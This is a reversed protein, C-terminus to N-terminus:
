LRNKLTAIVFLFFMTIVFIVHKKLEKCNMEHEMFDTKM